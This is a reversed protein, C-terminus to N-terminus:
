LSRYKKITKILIMTLLFGFIFNALNDGIYFDEYKNIWERWRFIDRSWLFDDQPSGKEMVQVFVTFCFGGLFYWLREINKKTNM